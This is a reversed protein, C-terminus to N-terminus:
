PKASYEEFNKRIEAADTGGDHFYLRYRFTASEGNKLTMSGDQNADGTFDRVGFPNAAFLGYTRVHWYTPFRESSPHNMMAIGCPKGDIVGTYDVWAARKGWAEDDTQGESNLIQGGQKKNVELVGPVRVGMTGEKTDGFTVDGNSAILKVDIDIWRGHVDAGFTFTREDSLIERDPRTMWVNRTVFTPAEMKLFEQHMIVGCNSGPWESWFDIGNVNGHTFWVSRQHIHDYSDYPFKKANPDKMPYDRTMATGSPAFVPWFIPKVGYFYQYTTFHQGDISVKVSAGNDEFAVEAEAAAAPLVAAFFLVIFLLSSKM